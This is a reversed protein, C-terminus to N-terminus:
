LDRIRAEPANQRRWSDFRQEAKLTYKGFTYDPRDGYCWHVYASWARDIKRATLLTWQTLIM